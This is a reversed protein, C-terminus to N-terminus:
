KSSKSSDLEESWNAIRAAGIKCLRMRRGNTRLLRPIWLALLGLLCIIMVFLSKSLPYDGALGGERVFTVIERTIIGLLFCTCYSTIKETETTTM